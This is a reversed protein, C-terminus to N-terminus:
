PIVEFNFHCEGYNGLGYNGIYFHYTYVGVPATYPITHSLHGSKSEHSGFYVSRPGFLFGSLNGDPKTVKTAFLVSGSNDSYNTGTAQFGLTGGRQVVTNDPVLNCECPRMFTYSFVGGSTGAFVTSDDAYNPSVAVSYVVTNSLGIETWSEGGNTSIYVGGPYTGAFVTSDDAYNPSVAVSYVMTNSLGIETWTEGGDTSKYVGDDTVAFVTSDNAYNPSFAVSYVDTYTFGNYSFGNQTWTEGGDTSKYFGHYTGAFVASDDAYNPSVAVSYVVTNSLGIQTWTEGGDTSKYVGDDTVAFVTPDNAYDPSIAVSQVYYYCNMRTWTEGGDTSKYVGHYTGAFVTSDDAYNPSIAVSHALPYPLGSNVQTWTEGGDTSKYVGGTYSIGADVAAFVTSDNAYDPSFALSLLGGKPGNSTWENIGASAPLAMLLLVACFILFQKQILTKFTVFQM